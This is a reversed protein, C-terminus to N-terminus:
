NLCIKREESLLESMTFLADQLLESFSAFEGQQFQLTANGATLIFIQQQAIFHVTGFKCRRTRNRRQGPMDQCQGIFVALAPLENAPMLCAVSGFDIEIRGDAFAIVCWGRALNCALTVSTQRPSFLNM